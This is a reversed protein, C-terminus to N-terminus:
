KERAIAVNVDSSLEFYVLNYCYYRGAFTKPNGANEFHEMLRRALDNTIGVYLTTKKPNTTIYTYYNHGIMIYCVKIQNWIDTKIMFITIEVRDMTMELLRS